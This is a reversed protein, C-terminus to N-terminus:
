VNGDARYLAVEVICLGSDLRYEGVFLYALLEGLVAHSEGGRVGDVPTAEHRLDDIIEGGVAVHYSVASDLRAILNVEDDRGSVEAIDEGGVIRALHTQRNVAKDARRVFVTHEGIEKVGANIVDVAAEIRSRRRRHINENRAVELTQEENRAAIGILEHALHHAVELLLALVGHGFIYHACYVGNEAGAAAVILARFIRNFLCKFVVAIQAVRM